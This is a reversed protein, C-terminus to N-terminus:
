SETTPDDYRYDVIKDCLVNMVAEYRSWGGFFTRIVLAGIPHDRMEAFQLANWGRNQLVVRLKDLEDRPGQVLLGVEVPTPELTVSIIGQLVIFAQAELFTARAKLVILMTSM